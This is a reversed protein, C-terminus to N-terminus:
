RWMNGNSNRVIVVKESTIENVEYESPTEEPFVDAGYMGEVTSSETIEYTAGDVRFCTKGNCSMLRVNEGLLDTSIAMGRNLDYIYKGSESLLAFSEFDDGRRIKMSETFAAVERTEGDVTNFSYLKTGSLADSISLFLLNDKFGVAAVPNQSEVLPRFIIGSEDSIQVEYIFSSTESVTKVFYKGQASSYNVTGLEAAGINASVDYTRLTNEDLSAVSILNRAGSASCGTLVITDDNKFAIKPNGLEASVGGQEGVLLGLTYFYVGNKTLVVANDGSIFTETSNEIKLEYFETLLGISSGQYAEDTIENSPVEVTETTTEETETIESAETTETEAAQSTIEETKVPATVESEDTEEPDDIEEEDEEPNEEEPDDDDIDQPPKLTSQSNDVSNGLSPADEPTTASTGSDFSFSTTTVPAATVITTTETFRDNSLPDNDEVIIPSFTEDNIEDSAIEALYVVSLDQVSRYHMSLTSIKVALVTKEEGHAAMYEAVAETGTLTQSDLYVASIEIEGADAVGSLTMVADCCSIPERFTVYIDVSKNKLSQLNFYNQEAESLRRAASLASASDIKIDIEPRPSNSNMYGVGSVTLAVAAAIGAAPKWYDSAFRQWAPKKAQKLANVRIKEPNLAYRSMIERYMEQETMAEGGKESLIYCNFASNKRKGSM